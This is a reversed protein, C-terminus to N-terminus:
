VMINVMCTAFKPGQHESFMRIRTEMIETGQCNLYKGGGVGYHECKEKQQTEYISVQCM